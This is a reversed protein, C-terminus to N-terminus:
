KPQLGIRKIVNAQFAHDKEIYERFERPTSAVLMLGSDKLIKQLEPTNLAKKVEGQMFSVRDSPTGAPFWWGYYGNLDMEKYGLEQFTPVDPLNPARQRGTLGLARLQGNAVYPAGATTSVISLEVQNSLMATISDATGKYPVPTLEIDALKKFFEVTVHTINGFGTIAYNYRNPERKAREVLDKLSAIPSNAPVMLLLGYSEALQTIPAFDTMIDYPLNKVMSPNATFSGTTQLMMYGDPPSKAVANTGIVGNAGPRNEIIIAQGIQESVKQVLPRGILDNPGGAGFPVILKINQSPYRDQASGAALGTAFASAMVTVWLALRTDIRM